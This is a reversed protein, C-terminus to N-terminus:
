EWPIVVPKKDHFDYNIEIEVRRNPLLCEKLEPILKVHGCRAFQDTAGMSKIEIVSSDLNMHENLYTSVSNARRESLRKNYDMKGLTDAYGVIKIHTIKNHNLIKILANLKEQAQLRINYKDFDFLVIQEEVKPIDVEDIIKKASCRDASIVSRTRVCKGQSDRLFTHNEIEIINNRNEAHVNTIFLLSVLLLKSFIQM